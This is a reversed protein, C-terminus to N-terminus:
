GLRGRAHAAYAEDQVGALNGHVLTAAGELAARAASAAIDVDMRVSARVRERVLACLAVVDRARDAIQLPVETAAKLADQVGSGSAYAQRLAAYVRNDDEALALGEGRLMTARSHARQLQEDSGRKLQLGCAMSVLAAAMAVQLAVVAGGGPVPATTALEDLFEKM